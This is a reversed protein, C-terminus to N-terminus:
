HERRAHAALRMVGSPHVQVVLDLPQVGLVQPNGGDRPLDLDTARGHISIEGHGLRGFPVTAAGRVAV